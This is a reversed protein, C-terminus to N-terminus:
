STCEQIDPQYSIVQDNLFDAAYLDFTETLAISSLGTSLSWNYLSHSGTADFIRIGYGRVSVWMRGCIDIIPKFNFTTSSSRTVASLTGWSWFNTSTDLTFTYIRTNTAAAAMYLLTDNVPCTASPTTSAYWTSAQTYTSHLSVNVNYFILMNTSVMSVIMVTGDRIFVVDRPEYPVSINTISSLTKTSLVYVRSSNGTGCGVFYVWM